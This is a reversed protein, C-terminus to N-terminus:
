NRPQGASYPGPLSPKGTMPSVNPPLPPTAPAAAAASAEPSLIRFSADLTFVSPVPKGDKRAPSFTSRRIAAVANEDLGFGIPRFVAVALPKGTADLIVKYSAIGAVQARQAYDNSSPVINKVIAPGSIGTGPRVISPDTPEISQHRIQAQYFYQWAEPLTALLRPGPIPGGPALIRDLGSRLMAAAQAASTTRPQFEAVATIPTPATSQAAAPQTAAPQSKAHKKKEKKPSVVLQRDITLVFRKKKPTIRLRDFASAQNDWNAADEFHIGYRVGELDLRRKTLRLKDFQVDCLTFSGRSSTSLLQGDQSFHLDDSLWFGRLYFHKNLLLQRLEAETVPGTNPDLVPAAPASGPSADTSADPSADPSTQTPAAKTESPIAQPPSDPPSVQQPHSLSTSFLPLVFAALWALRM